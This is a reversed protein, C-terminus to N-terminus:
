KSPLDQLNNVKFFNIIEEPSLNNDVLEKAAYMRWSMNGESVFNRIIRAVASLSKQAFSVLDDRNVYFIDSAHIVAESAVSSTNTVFITIIEAASELENLNARVWNVHSAAQRVHTLSIAKDESQYIKAESVICIQSGLQWWPDPDGDRKPNGTKYGLATGLEELGREFNKGEMSTLLEMIKVCREEFEISRRVPNMRMAYFEIGDILYSLSVSEANDVKTKETQVKLNNFWNITNSFAAAQSYHANAKEAYLLNNENLYLRNYLSGLQYNWYQRYGFLDRDRLISFIKEAITIAATYDKDWLKYQYQVELIAASHLEINIKNFSNEAQFKNRRTIIRKDIEDWENTRTFGLGAIEILDEITEAQRSVSYGTEIEARLEPDFLKQKDQSVLINELDRGVVFVVAYDNTSRTCRGVAQTIKSKIRENYLVSTSLKSTFFKEQLNSSNPLGFLALFHCTDDQMNIGDYRNALIALANDNNKYSELSKEIDGITYIETEPLEVEFFKKLNEVTKTKEVLVVGRPTQNQIGKFINNTDSPEFKANPFIFFRRGISPINEELSIRHINSLGTTKEIEGSMGLTASMFIRHKANLFAPHTMTPPIYPRIVIEQKSLYINCASLHYKINSWPYMLPLSSVRPDITDFLQKEIKDLSQIPVLDCWNVEEGAAGKERLRIYSSYDIVDKLLETVANFLETHSERDINVTWNSSIYNEASHADDFILVDADKFFSNTNFISSYNTVAIKKSTIYDNRDISPYDAQRGTFAIAPIGYENEAKDVVQYVLQNNPCVYVVKENEKIRRYEALLLGVLTKGSGTPLEIAVNNEKYGTELYKDLIDSQFDLIGSIKKKKYDKYLEQPSNFEVPDEDSFTFRRM